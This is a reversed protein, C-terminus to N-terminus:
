QVKWTVAYRKVYQYGDEDQELACYKDKLIAIGYSKLPVRGLFRGEADFVDCAVKGDETKEWTRVVLNGLDSMFFEEYASHFKSLDYTIGSDSPVAALRDRKEAETVSM